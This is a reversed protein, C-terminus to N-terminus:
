FSVEFKLNAKYAFCRHGDV